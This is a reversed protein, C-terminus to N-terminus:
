YSGSLTWLGRMNGRIDDLSAPHSPFGPDSIRFPKDPNGTLGSIVVFHAPHVKLWVIQEGRDLIGQIERPGISRGRLSAFQGGIGNAVTRFDTGNAGRGRTVEGEATGRLHGSMAGGAGRAGLASIANGARHVIDLDSTADAEPDERSNFELIMALSMLGCGGAQITSVSMEGTQANRNYLAERRDPQGDAPAQGNGRYAERGWRPNGQSMTRFRSQMGGVLGQREHELAGRDGEGQELQQSIQRVRQRDRWNELRGLRQQARQLAEAQTPDARLAAVIQQWIPLQQRRVANLAELQVPDPETGRPRADLQARMARAQTLLQSAQAQLPALQGPDAAPAAGPPAPAAGSPAMAATGAAFDKGRVHAAMPSASAAGPTANRQIPQAFDPRTYM